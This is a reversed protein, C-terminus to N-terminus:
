SSPFSKTLNVAAATFTSPSTARSAAMGPALHTSYSPAPAPWSVVRLTTIPAKWLTSKEGLESAKGIIKWAKGPPAQYRSIVTLGHPHKRLVRRWRGYERGDDTRINYSAPEWGGEEAGVRFGKWTVSM